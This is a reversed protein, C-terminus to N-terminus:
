AVDTVRMKRTVNELAGSALLRKTCLLLGLGDSKRHSVAADPPAHKPAPATARLANRRANHHTGKKPVKVVVKYMVYGRYGAVRTATANRQPATRHTSHTNMNRTHM